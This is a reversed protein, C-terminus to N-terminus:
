IFAPCVTGHGAWTGRTEPPEHIFIVTGAPAIPHERFDFQAGTILGDYASIGPNPQWPLLHNLTLEAIPILKNWQQVPYTPSATGRVSAANLM